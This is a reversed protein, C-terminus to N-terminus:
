GKCAADPAAKEFLRFVIMAEAVKGLDNKELKNGAPGTLM